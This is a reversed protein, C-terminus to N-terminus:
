VCMLERDGILWLIYGAGVIAELPLFISRILLESDAMDAMLWTIIVSFVSSIVAVGLLGKVAIKLACKDKKEMM